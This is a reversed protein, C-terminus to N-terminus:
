FAGGSRRVTGPPDSEVAYVEVRTEPQRLRGRGRGLIQRFFPDIKLKDERVRTARGGRTAERVLTEWFVQTLQSYRYNYKRDIEKRRQTLYDELEWLDSPEKIQSAMQKAEQM